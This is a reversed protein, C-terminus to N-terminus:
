YCLFELGVSADESLGFEENYYQQDLYYIEEVKGEKEKRIAHIAGKERFIEFQGKRGLYLQVSYRQARKLLECMGWVDNDGCLSTIIERGKDYPAIVGITPSNIVCFMKSATMFSQKLSCEDVQRKCAHVNRSLLNFLNDNHDVGDKLGVPYNLEDERRQFYRAYYNKISKLSLINEDYQTPNRKYLNFATDAENKGLQIDPLPSLNEERVNVVWVDGRDARLGHRNCRGAAQTISDLGALARIVSGFDIDVGAEVLQTSVCIVREKKELKEKIENLKDMRHAPCMNTSLHYLSVNLMRNKIEKYINLASNRTNVVILVSGKKQLAKEALDAIDSNTLGGPKREDHVEVRKLRQFLEPENNIIHNDKPISLERYPNGTNDFPPQTATCLVVSSGCDHTLFRLATTFMHTIKIPITQVEDFIIVSNALQHMRRADRTGSSFLAELFQVQTTFVIPADWNESLLSYRKRTDESPIFNSHHELVIKGREDEKELISRIKSANQDIITIYPVIYFVREMKHERAHHLAFRLSAETKGGGTPVTLQYIGKPREAARLCSQAVYARIENVDRAPGQPMHELTQNYEAYKKELRQILEDWSVYKGYNRIAENGPNEFDATSLRDAELLCSLLFRALLGRKFWRVDKSEDQETMKTFVIQYFDKEIPEALISALKIEIEPLKDRAETLHTINDSKTIRREFENFGDPKLCDILGSHHSAISLALFQALIKGEQERGALKQYILQAGATSHDIKGRKAEFDVYEDEDPNMRGAASRLYEQFEISSKGFDHLLGMIRGIQSLGVKSAYNAALDATEILHTSLLQEKGDKRVHAILNEDKKQDAMKVGKGM